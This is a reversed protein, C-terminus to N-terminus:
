TSVLRNFFNIKQRLEQEDYGPQCRYCNKGRMFLSLAPLKNISAEELLHPMKSGDVAAFNVTSYENSLTGLEESIDQSLGGSLNYCVVTLTPSSCIALLEERSSINVLRSKMKNNSALASSGM